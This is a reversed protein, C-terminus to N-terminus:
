HSCLGVLVRRVTILEIIADFDLGETSQGRVEKVKMGPRLLKYREAASNAKISDIAVTDEEEGEDFVIGISGANTFVCEVIDDDDDDEDEEESSEDPDDVFVMECPKEADQIRQNVLELPMGAVRKGAVTRLLMGLGMGQAKAVPGFADQVQLRGDVEIYIIQPPDIDDHFYTCSGDEDGLPIDIPSGDTRVVPTGSDMVAEVFKSLAAIPTTDFSRAGTRVDVRHVLAHDFVTSSSGVPM